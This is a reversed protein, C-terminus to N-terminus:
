TVMPAYEGENINSQFPSYHDYFFFPEDMSLSNPLCLIQISTSTLTYM